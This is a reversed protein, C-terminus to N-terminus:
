ENSKQKLKQLYRDLGEQFSEKQINKLFNQVDEEQMLLFEDIEDLKFRLKMRVRTEIDFKEFQVMFEKCKEIARAKTNAIENVLGVKLADETTFLTRKSIAEEADQRDMVKRMTGRVYEPCILGLRAESLGIKFNPLMVRYDCALSIVCGGAPCHGNIAAATLLPSSYIKYWLEQFARYAKEARNMDPKHFEHFDLGECFSKDSSSTFIVGNARNKTLEDIKNTIEHAFELNLANVPPRNLELIAIETKEDISVNLMSSNSSFLRKPLKQALNAVKLISKRLM